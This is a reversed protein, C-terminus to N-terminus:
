AIFNSFTFVTRKAATTSIRARRFDVRKPLLGLGVPMELAQELVM